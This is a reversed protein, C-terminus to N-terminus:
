SLLGYNTLHTVLDGLVAVSAATPRAIPTAGFFGIQNSGNWEFMTQDGNLTSGAGGALSTVLKGTGGVASGTGKGARITLNAGTKNSGSQSTVSILTALPTTNTVGNGIYMDWTGTTPGVAGVLIQQAATPALARGIIVCHAHNGMAVSHGIGVSYDGSGNTAAYGIIISGPCSTDIDAAGGIAVCETSQVGCLKGIAISYVGPDTVFAQYGILTVSSASTGLGSLHGLQVSESSRGVASLVPRQTAGGALDNYIFPYDVGGSTLAVLQLRAGYGRTGMGGHLEISPDLDTTSSPVGVAFKADIETYGASARNRHVQLYVLDNTGDTFLRSRILDANTTTSSSFVELYANEIATDAADTNIAFIASKTGALTVFGPSSTGGYSQLLDGVTGTNGNFSWAGSGDWYLKPNKAGGLIIREEGVYTDIRMYVDGATSKISFANRNNVPITLYDGLRELTNVRLELQRLQKDVAEATAFKTM